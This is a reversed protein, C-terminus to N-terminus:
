RLKLVYLKTLVMLGVKTTAHNHQQLCSLGCRGVSGVHNTAKPMKM